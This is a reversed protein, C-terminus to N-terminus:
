RYTYFTRSNCNNCQKTVCYEQRVGVHHLKAIKNLEPVKYTSLCKTCHLERNDFEDFGNLAEFQRLFEEPDVSELWERAKDLSHQLKSDM